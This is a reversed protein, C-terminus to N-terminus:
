FILARGPCPLQHQWPAVPGLALSGLAVPGSALSELALSGSALSVALRGVLEATKAEEPGVWASLPGRAM